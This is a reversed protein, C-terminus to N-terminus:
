KGIVCGNNSLTTVKQKIFVQNNELTKAYTKKFYVPVNHM